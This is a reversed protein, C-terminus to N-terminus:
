PVVIPARDRRWRELCRANTCVTQAEDAWACQAVVVDDVDGADALVVIACGNAQTCGCYRCQGPSPDRPQRLQEVLERADEFRGSAIAEIAALQQTHQSM